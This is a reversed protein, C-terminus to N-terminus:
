RLCALFRIYYLKNAAYFTARGYIAAAGIAAFFLMTLALLTILSMFQWSGSIFLEFM